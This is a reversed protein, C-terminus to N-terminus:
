NTIFVITYIHRLFRWNEIEVDGFCLIETKRAAVTAVVKYGFFIDTEPIGGDNNSYNDIWNSLAKGDTKQPLCVFLSKM